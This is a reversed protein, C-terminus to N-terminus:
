LLDFTVSEKLITVFTFSHVKILHFKNSKSFYKIPYYCYAEFISNNLHGNRSSHCIVARIKTEM